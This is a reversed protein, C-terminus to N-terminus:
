KDTWDKILRLAEDVSIEDDAESFWGKNWEDLLRERQNTRWEGNGVYREVEELKQRYLPVGNNPYRYINPYGVGRSQAFYRLDPDLKLGAQKNQDKDSGKGEKPKM